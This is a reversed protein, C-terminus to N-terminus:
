VHTMFTDCISFSCRLETELCLLTQQASQLGTQMDHPTMMYIIYLIYYIIYLIYYIIYLIYYIIYLIYYIIYLIYYIYIYICNYIYLDYYIISIITDCYITYSLITSWECGDTASLSSCSRVRRKAQRSPCESEVNRHNQQRLKSPEVPFM